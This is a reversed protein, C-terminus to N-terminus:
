SNAIKRGEKSSPLCSSRLSSVMACVAYLSMLGITGLFSGTRGMSASLLFFREVGKQKCAKAFAVNYTFDIQRFAAESGAEKITTGLCSFADTDKGISLASVFEHMQNFDKLQYFHMSDSLGKPQSRAIIIVKQYLSGLQTLLSNGVLGTAGIILATRQM